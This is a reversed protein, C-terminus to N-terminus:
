PWKLHKCFNHLYEFNQTTKILQEGTEVVTGRFSSKPSCLVLLWGLIAAHLYFLHAAELPVIQM